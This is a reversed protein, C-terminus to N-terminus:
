GNHKGQADKLRGEMILLIADQVDDYRASVAKQESATFTGLVWDALQYEPHPKAGVGIKVRPYDEGIHGNISKLGNHGGASGNPRVRLKGPELSVDDFVVIVNQPAVKYFSTAKKVSTGSCNMFTQPKIFLVKNGKINATASLADFKSRTIKVGYSQAMHDVACFGVNHRTREYKKGPNGLGVIIYDIQPKKFLM